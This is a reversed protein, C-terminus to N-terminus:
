STALSDWKDREIIYRICARGAQDTTDRIPRAGIARSMVRSARHDRPVDGCVVRGGHITFVANIADKIVRLARAGRLAYTFLYHMEYVGNGKWIFLVLGRADGIMVNHPDNFFPALDISPFGPAVYELVEPSNAVDNLLELADM